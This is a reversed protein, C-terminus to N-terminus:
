GAPTHPHGKNKRVFPTCPDGQEPANPTDGMTIVLPPIPTDGMTSEKESGREGQPLPPQPNPTWKRQPNPTDGVQGKRANAREEARLPCWPRAPSTLRQPRRQRRWAFG